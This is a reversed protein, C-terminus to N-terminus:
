PWREMSMWLLHKFSTDNQLERQTIDPFFDVLHWTSQPVLQLKWKHRYRDVLEWSSLNVSFKQLFFIEGSLNKNQDSDIMVQLQSFNPNWDVTKDCCWSLHLRDVYQENSHKHSLEKGANCFQFKESEVSGGNYLNGCWSWLPASKSQLEYCITSYIAVNFKTPGLSIAFAESYM